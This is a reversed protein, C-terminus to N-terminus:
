LKKFVACYFVFDPRLIHKEHGDSLIDSSKSNLDSMHIIIDSSWCKLKSYSPFLDSHCLYINMSIELGFNVQMGIVVTLHRCKFENEVECNREASAVNQNVNSLAVNRNSVLESPDSLCYVETESQDPLIDQPKRQVDSLKVYPDSLTRQGVSIKLGSFIPYICFTRNLVPVPLHLFAPDYTTPLFTM